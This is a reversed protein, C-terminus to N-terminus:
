LHKFIESMYLLLNTKKELLMNFTGTYDNYVIRQRIRNIRSNLARSHCMWVLPCYGFQSQIFAKMIIRRKNENMYPSVRSLAHLKQSAQKCLKSVHVNFKLENDITIGLLKVNNNNNISHGGIIASLDNDPSNLLLHSKLTQKLHM